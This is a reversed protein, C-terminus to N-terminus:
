LACAALRVRRPSPRGREETEAAEMFAAWEFKKKQRAVRPSSSTSSSSAVPPLAHAARTSNAHNIPALRPSPPQPRRASGGAGGEEGHRRSISMSARQLIGRAHSKTIGAAQLERRLRAREDEAATKLRGELLTTGALQSARTLGGLGDHREGDVRGGEEDEEEGDPAPLWARAEDIRNDEVHLTRGGLRPSVLAPLLGLSRMHRRTQSQEAAAKLELVRAAWAKRERSAAGEAAVAQLARALEEEQLRRKEEALQRRRMREMSAQREAEAQQRTAERRLRVKERQARQIRRAALRREEARLMLAELKEKDLRKEQERQMEREEREALGAVEEEDEAYAPPRAIGRQIEADALFRGDRTTISTLLLELFSVYSSAQVSDM